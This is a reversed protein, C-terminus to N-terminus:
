AIKGRKADVAGLALYLAGLLAGGYILLNSSVSAFEYHRHGSFALHLGAHIILFLAVVKMTARRLSTQVSALLAVVVAFLPVHAWLFVEYGLEENLWSTLPLVRWEANRVADLEHTFMMGLGIYFLASRGQTISM